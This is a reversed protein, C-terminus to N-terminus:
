SRPRGKTRARRKALRGGRSQKEGPPPSLPNNNDSSSGGADAEGPDVIQVDANYEKVTLRHQVQNKVKLGENIFSIIQAVWLRTLSSGVNSEFGLCLPDDCRTSPSRTSRRHATGWRRTVPAITTRLV